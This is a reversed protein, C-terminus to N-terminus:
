NGTDLCDFVPPKTQWMLKVRKPTVVIRDNLDQPARFNFTLPNGAEDMEIKRLQALYAAPVYITQKLVFWQVIEDCDPTTLSGEYFYYDLNKPLLDAMVIKNIPIISDVETIKSADLTKFVGRIPRRSVEGRVAIVALADGATPDEGGIRESVFHIEFEEANGNVLHETGEGNGRGWHFHFQLLKYKGVPTQVIANISKDPTFEVNQCTNQFEGEISRFFVSSFRLPALKRVKVNRTDINIPSQRCTNGRVCIGPWQDQEKYSFSASEVLTILVLTLLFGIISKMKSYTKRSGTTHIRKNAPQLRSPQVDTQQKKYIAM